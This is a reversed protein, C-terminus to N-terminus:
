PRGPPPVGPRGAADDVLRQAVDLAPVRAGVKAARGECYRRWDDLEPTRTGLDGCLRYGDRARDFWMRMVSERLRAASTCLTPDSKCEDAVVALWDIGLSEQMRAVLVAEVVLERTDRSSHTRMMDVVREYIERRQTQWPAWGLAHAARIESEPLTQSSPEEALVSGALGEALRWAERVEPSLREPALPPM